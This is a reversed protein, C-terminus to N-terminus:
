LLMSNTSEHGAEQIGCVFLITSQPQHSLLEMEVIVSHQFIKKIEM